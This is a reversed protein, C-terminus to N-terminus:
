ESDEEEDVDSDLKVFEGSPGFPNLIKTLEKIQRVLKARNSKGNSGNINQAVRDLDTAGLGVELEAAKATKVPDINPLPSGILTHSLWAERLIPDSWGPCEIRGSAIEEALWNEYLPTIFGNDINKRRIEAIRYFLILAARSASYNSAFKLMFVEYPLDGSAALHASFTEVFKDYNTVPATNGISKVTDKARLNLIALGGNEKNAFEGVTDINMSSRDIDDVIAKEDDSLSDYDIGDIGAPTTIDELPNSPDTDGSNEIAIAISAQSIAKTIHSDTFDTLRQFEQIAHAYKPIGRLQSIQDAVFSHSMITRGSRKAPIDRFYPIGKGDVGKVRFSVARGKRDRTIGDYSNYEGNTSTVGDGCINLPDTLEFSCTSLADPEDEFFFHVFQDNDTISSKHYLAQAQYGTMKRSRHCKKSSLYLDFREDVDDNWKEAVEETLGLLSANCNASLKIGTDVVLDVERNVMGKAQISDHYARRSNLILRRSNYLLPTGNGSLGNFVKEGGSGGHSNIAIQNTIPGRNRRDTFIPSRFQPTSKSGFMGAIMSKIGM